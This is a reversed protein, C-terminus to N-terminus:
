LHTKVKAASQEMEAWTTADIRIGDRERAARAKREPDGAILVADVGPAAPGQHLWDIFALAEREFTDQTGLKKPDILITLMGNYVSRKTDAERHWTGGGSLAGGLLECAVALGYGKHEGFTM